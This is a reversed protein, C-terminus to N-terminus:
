RRNGDSRSAPEPIERPDQQNFLIKRDGMEREAMAKDMAKKLKSM